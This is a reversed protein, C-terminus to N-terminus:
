ADVVGASEKARVQVSIGGTGTGDPSATGRTVTGFVPCNETYLRVLREATSQTVGETAVELTV